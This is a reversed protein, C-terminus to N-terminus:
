LRSWTASAEGCAIADYRAAFDRIEEKAINICSGSLEIGCRRASLAM